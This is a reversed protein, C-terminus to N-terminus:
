RAGKSKLERRVRGLNNKREQRRKWRIGKKIRQVFIPQAISV